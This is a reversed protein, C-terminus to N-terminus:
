ERDERRSALGNRILDWVRIRATLEVDSEAQLAAAQPQFAPPISIRVAVLKAALGHDHNMATSCGADAVAIGPLPASLHNWTVQVPISKRLLDNASDPVALCLASGDGSRAVTAQITCRSPIASLGICGLLCVTVALWLWALEGRHEFAPLISADERKIHRLIAEKRFLTRPAAANQM